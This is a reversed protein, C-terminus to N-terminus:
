RPAPTRAPGTHPAARSTSGSRGDPRSRRRASARRPDPRPSPAGSSTLPRAAELARIQREILPPVVKRERLVWPLGALAAGLARWRIEGGDRLARITAVLAARAPRRLWATWLDNRLQRQRRAERPGSGAPHHFARVEPVYALDWGAAALELALLQEEGGTGFHRPFGGVALFASRRVVAGCAVFGLVPRGPLPKASDIASSAMEACTPDLRHDRGVLVQAALLGLAPYRRFAERAASLAGDEFWSDDDTFAILPTHMVAAGVNRAAGGVNRRLRVLRVAPHLREVAAATGDTSANDVVCLPPRGPLRELRQLTRLLVDRRNRSVVVVGVDDV